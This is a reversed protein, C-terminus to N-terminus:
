LALEHEFEELLTRSFSTLFLALWLRAREDERSRPLLEDMILFAEVIAADKAEGSLETRDLISVIELSLDDDVTTDSLLRLSIENLRAGAYLLRMGEDSNLGDSGKVREVLVRAAAQGVEELRVERSQWDERTEPAGCGFLFLVPAIRVLAAFHRWNM